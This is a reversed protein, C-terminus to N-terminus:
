IGLRRQIRKLEKRKSDLGHESLIADLKMPDFAGAEIFRGIRGFDKTRSTRLMIAILHEPTMVRVPINMYPMTNAERIAESNLANDEDIVLFQVRFGEIVFGDEQPLYLDNDELYTIIPRLVDLSSRDVGEVLCFIDVDFTTDPEIYFFAAVAGGLAYSKIVGDAIMQNIAAFTKDLTAPAGPAGTTSITINSRNIMTTM